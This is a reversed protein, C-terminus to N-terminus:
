KIDTGIGELEEVKQPIPEMEAYKKQIIRRVEDEYGVLASFPAFQAARDRVPMHKRWLSQPHPLKMIDRYKEINGMREIGKRM